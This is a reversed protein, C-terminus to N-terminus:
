NNGFYSTVQSPGKRLNVFVPNKAPDFLIVINSEAANKPKSLIIEVPKGTQKMFVISDNTIPHVPIQLESLAAIMEARARNISTDSDDADMRLLYCANKIQEYRATDTEERVSNCALAFFCLSILILRM